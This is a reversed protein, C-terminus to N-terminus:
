RKYLRYTNRKVEEAMKVEQYGLSELEKDYHYRNITRDTLAAWKVDDSSIQGIVHDRDTIRAPSIEKLVPLKWLYLLRGTRWNQEIAAGELEPQDLINRAVDVGNETRKFRYGDFELLLAGVFVVSIIFARLASKAPNLDAEYRNCIDTVIKWFSGAALIAFFPIIPVMYRPEKHPLISLLIIPIFAWGMIQRKSLRYAYLSLAFVFINSWNPVKKIYYYFPDFGSTTKGEIITFNFATILSHFPRGWYIADSVGLIVACTAGFVAGFIIVDRFRKTAVFPIIAPILFVAEGFRICAGTGLCVAAIILGSRNRRSLIFLLSLLIFTSAVTRPLVSAAFCTHLKSTALFLIALLGVARSEFEKCAIKYVLLLNILSFAIVVFRGALILLTTDKTGFSHLLSQIPYIFGMPFFANRLEWATWDWAFLKAFTMELVEVDDGCFFGYYFYANLSKLIASFILIGIIWWKARRSDISKLRNYLNALLNISVQPLEKLNIAKILLFPSISRLRYRIFGLGILCYVLNEISHIDIDAGCINYIGGGTSLVLIILGTDCVFLLDLLLVLLLM